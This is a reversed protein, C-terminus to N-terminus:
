PVISIQVVFQQLGIDVAHVLGAYNGPPTEPPVRIDIRVENSGGPPIRITSPSISIHTKSISHALPGVLDTTYLVCSAAENPDDNELSLLIHSTEGAKVPPPPKLLPVSTTDGDAHSSAVGAVTSAFRGMQEPRHQLMKVFTDVLELAQERFREATRELNSPESPFPNGFPETGRNAFGKLEDSLVASAKQIFSPLTRGLEVLSRAPTTDQVSHAGTRTVPLENTGPSTGM